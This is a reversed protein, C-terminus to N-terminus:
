AVARLISLRHWVSQIHLGELIIQTQGLAGGLQVPVYYRWFPTHQSEIARLETVRRGQLPLEKKDQIRKDQEEHFKDDYALDGM